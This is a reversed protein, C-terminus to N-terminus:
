CFGSRENCLHDHSTLLLFRGLSAVAHSVYLGTLFSEVQTGINVLLALSPLEVFIQGAIKMIVDLFRCGCCSRVATHNRGNRTEKLAELLAINKGINEFSALTCSLLVFVLPWVFKCRVRREGKASSTPRKLERDLKRRHRATITSVNM